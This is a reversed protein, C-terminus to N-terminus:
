RWSLVTALNTVHAPPGRRAVAELFTNAAVLWKLAEQLVQKREQSRYRSPPVHWTQRHLQSDPEHERVLQIMKGATEPMSGLFSIWRWLTSPVLAAGRSALRSSSGRDDYVISRGEHRCGKRYSAQSNLCVTAFQQITPLAYRRHPVAVPVTPLRYVDQRLGPM